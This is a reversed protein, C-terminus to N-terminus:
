LIGVKLPAAKNKFYSRVLDPDLTGREECLEVLGTLSGQGGALAMYIWLRDQRSLLNWHYPLRQAIFSAGWVWNSVGADWVNDMLTGLCQAAMDEVVSVTLSVIASRERSDETSSLITKVDPLVSLLNRLHGEAVEPSKRAVATSCYELFPVSPCLAIYGLVATVLDDPFFSELGSFEPYDRGIIRGIDSRLTEPDDLISM